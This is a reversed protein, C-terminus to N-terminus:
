QDLTDLPNGESTENNFKLDKPDGRHKFARVETQSKVVKKGEETAKVYQGQEYQNNFPNEDSAINPTQSQWKNGGAFPINQKNYRLDNFPFNEGKNRAPLRQGAPVCKKINMIEEFRPNREFDSNNTEPHDFPIAGGKDKTYTSMKHGKNKEAYVQNM